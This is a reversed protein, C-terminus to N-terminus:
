HGKFFYGILVGLMAGAGSYWYLKREVASLRKGHQIRDEHCTLNDQTIAAIGIQVVAMSASMSNISTLLSSMSGELRGIGRQLENNSATDESM